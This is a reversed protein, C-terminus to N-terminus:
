PLTVSPYRDKLRLQSAKLNFGNELLSRLYFKEAGYDQQTLPDIKSITQNIDRIVSPKVAADKSTLKTLATALNRQAARRSLHSEWLTPITFSRTCKEPRSSHNLSETCTFAALLSDIKQAQAHNAPKGLASAIQWNLRSLLAKGPRSTDSKAKQLYKKLEKRAMMLCAAYYNRHHLWASLNARRRIWHPDWLLMNLESRPDIQGQILLSWDPQTQEWISGWSESTCREPSGDIVDGRLTDEAIGSILGTTDFAYSRLHPLWLQSQTHKSNVLPTILPLFRKMYAHHSKMDGSQVYHDVRKLNPDSVTQNIPAQIYKEYAFTFVLLTIGTLALFISARTVFASLSLPQQKQHKASRQLRTGTHESLGWGGLMTDRVTEELEPYHKKLVDVDDFAIWQGCHGCVEDQIGFQMKQYSTKIEAITLPGIYTELNRRVLYLRSM